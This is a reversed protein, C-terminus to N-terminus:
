RRRREPDITAVILCHDSAKNWNSPRAIYCKSFVVESKLARSVFVYDVRSYIDAYKWYYTWREGRNDSLWIDMMYRPSNRVGIIEQITPENKTDNLDGYVLLNTDPDAKLVRDIRKRLLHAEHRRVLAQGEPVPRKSKLHVGILRLFYDEEVKVTVDLMGRRMKQRTGDLEYPVDPMSQRSAIPFRSFLALHRDGPSDGVYETDKFKLGVAELRRGLDEFMEEDGLECVGLIDPRAARIISILAEIEKDPKPANEGGGRRKMRLYNELNYSAFRFPEATLTRPLPILWFFLVAWICLTLRVAGARLPRRVSVKWTLTEM